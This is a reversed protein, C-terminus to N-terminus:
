FMEYLVLLTLSNLNYTFRKLCQLATFVSREFKM